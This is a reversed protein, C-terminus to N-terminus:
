RVAFAGCGWRPLAARCWGLLALLSLTKLSGQWLQEHAFGAHSVVEVKGACAVWGVGSGGPASEVPVLDVFWQPVQERGIRPDAERVFMVRGAMVCLSASTFGTDYMAQITLDMSPVDGRQQSLSLALSQANDANKLRLQTELYGRASVM